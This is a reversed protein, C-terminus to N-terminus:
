ESIAEMIVKAIDSTIFFNQKLHQMNIKKEWNMNDLLVYLWESLKKAHADYTQTTMIIEDYGQM